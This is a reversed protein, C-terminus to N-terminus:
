AIALWLGMDRRQEKGPLRFFKEFIHALYEDPIGTGTDEVTFRVMRGEPAATISVRGGASTHKLANSLLNSFVYQIRLEDAMVPPVDQPVEIKLVIGKDLFPARVEDVAQMVLQEATVSGMQM